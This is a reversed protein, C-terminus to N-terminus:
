GVGADGPSSAGPRDRRALDAVVLLAASRCGGALAGGAAVEVGLARGGAARTSLLARRADLAAVSGEPAGSFRSPPDPHVAVLTIRPAGALARQLATVEGPGFAGVRHVVVREVLRGDLMSPLAAAWRAPPTRHRLLVEGTADLLQLRGDAGVGLFYVGAGAGPLEQLAWPRGGAACAVRLALARAM